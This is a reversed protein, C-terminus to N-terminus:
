SFSVERLFVERRSEFFRGFPEDSDGGHPASTHSFHLLYHSISVNEIRRAKSGNSVDDEVVYIM